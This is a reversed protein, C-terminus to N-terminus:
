KQDLAGSVSVDKLRIVQQHPARENLFLPRSQAAFAVGKLKLPYTLEDAEEKLDDEDWATGYNWLNYISGTSLDPIASKATVPMSIFNWGDFCISVRGDYDFVDANHVPTGCSIGRRGQADEIEWFIQGWGSNGKIWIGVTNAKGPLVVPEKLRLVAYEYFIEPLKRDPHVLELELCEGKEPDSVQKMTYDGLTRFPMVVGSTKELLPEKDKALEWEAAKDMANVIKVDAPPIDRPYRRPGCAISEIPKPVILYKTATDVVLALSNNKLELKRERGYFDFLEYNSDALKITLEATGRSTWLPYVLKGDARAMELAYVTKSGTPFSRNRKVQDLMKTATAVGVYSKKPYIYPDRKCLGSSGWFSGAYTNGCDMIVALYIDPFDYTYSTLIDRVYWEAQNVAGIQADLRYNSEFCADVKWKSYGFKKATALMLEAAQLSGEWQREPLSSRGVVELGMYDAYKEPFKRRMGEAVLETSAMTNGVLIRLQPFKKRVVKAIMRARAWREDATKEEAGDECKQGILEPAIAYGNKSPAEHFIMANNAHPFQELTKRISAEIEAEDAGKTDVTVTSLKWEALESETRHKTGAAGASRRFGAKLLVPGYTEADASTYHAGGYNWTGYPSDDLGAKRTDRGLLAFSANHTLLLRDKDYLNFDIQYWGLEKQALSIKHTGNTKPDVKKEGSGVKEGEPNRIEWRLNFDGDKQPRTEVILEPVEDNHFINGSQVTKVEMEAAPKELTVGFVHVSSPYEPDPFFRRDGLPHCLGILKGTLEFDLYRGIQRLLTGRNDSFVIDQINGTALPIEVRYLPLIKGGVELTGVKIGTKLVDVTTNATANFGRGSYAGTSYIYRAVRANILPHKQPDDELACLVWARTYQACPVTFLCSYEPRFFVNRLSPYSRAFVEEQKVTEALDYNAGDKVIFPITDDALRVKAAKMKGPVSKPEIELAVYDATTARRDFKIEGFEGDSKIGVLRSERDFRGAYNGDVWVTITSPDQQLRIACEKGYIEPLKGWDAVKAKSNVGFTALPHLNYRIGFPEIEVGAAALVVQNSGDKYLDDFPRIRISRASGNDFLLEIDQGMRGIKVPITTNVTDKPVSVVPDSSEFKVNRFQLFPSKSSNGFIFIRAYAAGPRWYGKADSFAFGQICGEVKEWDAPVKKGAAGSYQYWSNNHERIRDAAKANIGVPGRLTVLWTGNTQKEIKEVTSKSIERNPLDKYGDRANFAVFGGRTFKGADVVKLITDNTTCDEVLFTDTGKIPNIEKGEIRRMDKDYVILAFSFTAKPDCGPMGRFEGSLVSRKSPDVPFIEATQAGGGGQIGLTGNELKTLSKADLWDNIEPFTRVSADSAALVGAVFIPSFALIGAFLQKM